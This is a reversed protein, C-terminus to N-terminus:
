ESRERNLWLATGDPGVSVHGAHPRAISRETPRLRFGRLADQPDTEQNGSVDQMLRVLNDPQMSVSLSVGAGRAIPRHFGTESHAYESIFRRWEENGVLLGLVREVAEEAPRYAFGSLDDESSDVEDSTKTREALVTERLRVGVETQGAWCLASALSAIDAQFRPPRTEMEPEPDEVVVRSPEPCRPNRIFTYFALGDLQSTGKFGSLQTRARKETHRPIPWTTTGKAEFWLERSGSISTIDCRYDPGSAGGNGMTINCAGMREALLCSMAVGVMESLWRSVNSNRPKWQLESSNSALYEAMPASLIWGDTRGAWWSEIFFYRSAARLLDLVSVTAIGNVTRPRPLRGPWLGRIEVQIERQGTLTAYTPLPLAFPLTVVYKGPPINGTIVIQRVM